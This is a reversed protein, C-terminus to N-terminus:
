AKEAIAVIIKLEVATPSAWADLVMEAISAYSMRKLDPFPIRLTISNRADYM